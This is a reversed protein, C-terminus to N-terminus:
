CVRVVVVSASVTDAEVKLLLKGYLNHDHRGNGAGGGQEALPVWGGASM